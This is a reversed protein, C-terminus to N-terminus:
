NDYNIGKGKKTVTKSSYVKRKRKIHNWPDQKVDEINAEINGHQGVFCNWFTENQGFVNMMLKDDISSLKEVDFKETILDDRSILGKELKYEELERDKKHLLNILMSQREELHKVTQILPVTIEKLFTESPSKLLNFKFRIKYESKITNLILKLGEDSEVMEVNTCDSISNIAEIVESGVEEIKIDFLPNAEQFQQLLEDRSVDQVWINQFDTVVLRLNDDQVIKIMYLNEGHQFTKWM